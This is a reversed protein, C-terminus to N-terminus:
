EAALLGYFREQEDPAERAEATRLKFLLCASVFLFGVAAVIWCADYKWELKNNWASQWLRVTASGLRQSAVICRNATSDSLRAGHESKYDLVYCDSSTGVQEEDPREPATGTSSLGPFGYQYACRYVPASGNATIKVLDWARYSHTCGKSTFLDAFSPQEQFDEDAMHMTRCTGPFLDGKDIDKLSRSRCICEKSQFQGPDGGFAANNCRISGRVEKSKSKGSFFWTHKARYEVTGDCQCEQDENACRVFSSCESYNGRMPDDAGDLTCTGKYEIGSLVRECTAPTTVLQFSGKRFAKGETMWLCGVCLGIGGLMMPM